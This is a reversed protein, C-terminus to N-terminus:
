HKDNPGVLVPTNSILADSSNFPLRTVMSDNQLTVGKASISVVESNDVALIDGIVVDYYQNQYTLVAHWKNHELTISKIGYVVTNAIYNNDKAALVTPNVPNNKSKLAVDGSQQNKLLDLDQKMKLAATEAAYLAQQANYLQLKFKLDQLENLMKFYDSKGNYGLFTTDNITVAQPTVPTVTQPAPVIAGPQAQPSALANNPPVGTLNAKDTTPTAAPTSPVALKQTTDSMELQRSQTTNSDSFLGFVQYLVLLFIVVAFVLMIKQKLPLDTLKKLQTLMLM